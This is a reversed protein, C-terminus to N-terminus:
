GQAIAKAASIPVHRDRLRIFGSWEHDFFGM